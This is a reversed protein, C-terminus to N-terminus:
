FGLDPYVEPVMGRWRSVLYGGGQVEGVSAVHIAVLRGMEDYVGSGSNGPISNINYVAYGHKMWADPGTRLEAVSGCGRSRFPMEAVLCVHDGVHPDAGMESWALFQVSEDVPTLMAVDKARGDPLISVDVQFGTMGAPTVTVLTATGYVLRGSPFTMERDCDVVHRATLIHRPGVIVGSGNADSLQVGNLSALARDVSTAGVFDCVVHVGVAVARLRSTSVPAADTLMPAVAVPRVCSTATALVAIALKM